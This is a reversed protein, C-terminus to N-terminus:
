SFLATRVSLRARSLTWSTWSSGSAKDLFWILHIM